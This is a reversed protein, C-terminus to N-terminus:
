EKTYIEDAVIAATVLNETAVVASFMLQNGKIMVSSYESVDSVVNIVTVRKDDLVRGLKFTFPDSSAPFQGAAGPQTCAADLYGQSMSLAGTGSTAFAFTIKAFVKPEVELCPSTWNGAIESLAIPMVGASATSAVPKNDMSATSGAPAQNSNKSGTAAPEGNASSQPNDSTAPSTQGKADSQAHYSPAKQCHCLFVSLALLTPSAYKM